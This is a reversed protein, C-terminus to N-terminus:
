APPLLEAPLKGNTPPGDLTLATPSLESGNNENQPTVIPTTDDPKSDKNSDSCATVLACIALVSLFRLMHM